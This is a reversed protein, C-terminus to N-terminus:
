TKKTHKTYVKGNGYKAGYNVRCCITFVFPNFCFLYISGTGFIPVNVGMTIQTVRIIGLVYVFFNSKEGAEQNSFVLAYKEPRIKAKATNDDYVVVSAVADNNIYATFKTYSLDKDAGKEGGMPFFFFVLLGAMIVYYIWSWRSKKPQQKQNPQKPKQEAM